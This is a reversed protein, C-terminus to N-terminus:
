EHRTPVPAPRCPDLQRPTRLRYLTRRLVQRRRSQRGIGQNTQRLWASVMTQQRLPLIHPRHAYRLTADCSFPTFKHKLFHKESSGRGQDQSTCRNGNLRARRLGLDEATTPLGSFSRIGMIPLRPLMVPLDAPGMPLGRLVGFLASRTGVLNLPDAAARPDRRTM